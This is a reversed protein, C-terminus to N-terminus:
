QSSFSQSFIDMDNLQSSSRPSGQSTMRDVPVTVLDEVEQLLAEAKENLLLQLFPCSITILQKDNLSDSTRHNKCQKFKKWQTQSGHVNIKLTDYRMFVYNYMMM